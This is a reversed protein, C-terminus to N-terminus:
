SNGGSSNGGNSAGTAAASGAAMSENKRDTLIRELTVILALVLVVDEEAAISVQYGEGLSIWKRHVTARVNEGSDLVSFDHDWLNGRIQWGIEPADIEQHIPHFLKTRVETVEKGDIEIFHTEHMSIVKRHIHALENGEMDLLSTQNTISVAKSKVQYRENGELDYVHYIDHLSVLKEKMFLEM